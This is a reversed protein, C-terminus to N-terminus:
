AAFRIATYVERVIRMRGLADGGYEDTRINTAPSLFQALLHGM